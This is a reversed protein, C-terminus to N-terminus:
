EYLQGYQHAAKTFAGKRQRNSNRDPPTQQPKRKAAM